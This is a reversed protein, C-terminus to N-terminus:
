SFVEAMWAGGYHEGGQVCAQGRSWTASTGLGLSHSLLNQEPVDAEALAVIEVKDICVVGSVDMADTGFLGAAKWHIIHLRVGETKEGPEMREKRVM